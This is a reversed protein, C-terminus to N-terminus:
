PGTYHGCINFQVLTMERSIQCSNRNTLGELARLEILSLLCIQLARFVALKRVEYIGILGDDCVNRGFDILFARDTDREIMVNWTHM